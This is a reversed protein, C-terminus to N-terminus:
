NPALESRRRDLQRYVDNMLGGAAASDIGSLREIQSEFIRCRSTRAVAPALGRKTDGEGSRRPVTQRSHALTVARRFMAAAPAPQGRKWAVYGKLLHAEVSRAHSGLVADLLTLADAPRDRILALEGRRLL